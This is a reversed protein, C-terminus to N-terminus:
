PFRVDPDTYPPNQIKCILEGNWNQWGMDLIRDYEEGDQLTFQDTEVFQYLANDDLDRGPIRVPLGMIFVTDQTATCMMVDPKGIKEFTIDLAEINKDVSEMMDKQSIGSCTGAWTMIQPFYPIESRDGPKEMRLMKQFKEESTM